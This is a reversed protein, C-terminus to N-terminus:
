QINSLVLLVDSSSCIGLRNLIRILLASGGQSEVMDTILTHLPMCCQDDTSFLFLRRIRKSEYIHSSPDNVM